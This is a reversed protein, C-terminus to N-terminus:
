STGPEPTEPLIETPKLLLGLNAVDMADHFTLLVGRHAPVLECNGIPAPAVTITSNDVVLSGATTCTFDTWLVLVTRRDATGVAAIMESLLADVNRNVVDVRAAAARDLRGSRDEVHITMPDTGLDSPVIVDAM